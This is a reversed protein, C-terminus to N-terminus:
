NGGQNGGQNGQAPNNTTGAPLVHGLDTGKDCTITFEYIGNNNKMTATYNGGSPCKPMGDTFLKTYRTDAKLDLEANNALTVQDGNNGQMQFTAATSKMDRMNSICTKKEANKTVAGYVPIAVAVLIGMIVIVIMLEVLTFGKKSMLKRM